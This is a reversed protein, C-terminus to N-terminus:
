VFYSSLQYIAIGTCSENMHIHCLMNADIIHNVQSNMYPPYLCFVDRTLLARKM